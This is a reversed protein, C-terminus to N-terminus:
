EEHLHYGQVSARGLFLLPVERAFTATVNRVPFISASSVPHFDRAEDLLDENLADVNVHLEGRVILSGLYFVVPRKSSLIQVNRAEEAATLCLALLTQKQLNVTKRQIARLPRDATLPALEVDDLRIFDRGRDNLFVALEGLPQFHGRLCYDASLAEVQYTALSRELRGFM